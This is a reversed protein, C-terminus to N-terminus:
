NEGQRRNLKSKPTKVVMATISSVIIYHMTLYIKIHSREEGKLDRPKQSGKNM